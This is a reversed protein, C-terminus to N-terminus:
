AFNLYLPQGFYKRKLSKERLVSKQRKVGGLYTRFFIETQCVNGYLIKETFLLSFLSPLLLLLLIITTLLIYM